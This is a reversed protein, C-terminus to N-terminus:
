KQRLPLLLKIETVHNQTPTIELRGGHARLIEETIWLGTGTGATISKAANGRWGRKLMVPIDEPNVALGTNSISIYIYKSTMGACIRTTTNSFSYKAANDIVNRITQDILDSDAILRFTKMQDFSDSDVTFNVDKRLLKADAAAEICIKPLQYSPLVHLDPRIAVGESLNAYLQASIIVRYAKRCLGRVALLDARHRDKAVLPELRALAQRLPGRLEHHLDHVIQLLVRDNPAPNAPPTSPETM